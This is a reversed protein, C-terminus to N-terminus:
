GVLVRKQNADGDMGEGATLPLIVIVVLLFAHARERGLGRTLVVSLNMDRSHFIRRVIVVPRQARLNQVRRLDNSLLFFTFAADGGAEIAREHDLANSFNEVYRLLRPGQGRLSISIM